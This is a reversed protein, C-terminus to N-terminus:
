HMTGLTLSRMQPMLKAVVAMQVESKMATLAVTQQASPCSGTEPIAQCLAVLSDFGLIGAPNILDHAERASAPPDSDFSNGLQVLFREVLSQVRPIGLAWVAENFRTQNFLPEQPMDKCGETEVIQSPLWRQVTSYLKAREIPKAVHDNMGADLFTQVHMPLVNGTMAIIPIDCLPKALARICSTATVGDMVPMQIDMLVMDFHNKQLIRIADPANGVAAVAYGQDELYAKVIERNSDLDDVLLIKVLRIGERSKSGQSPEPADAAVDVQPPTATPLQATFWVTTGEGTESIVAIEGNMLEVLRKCIALGLGTGGHSRSISSDAQSFQNFLRHQHELAIGIGTDTVSFRVTEGDATDRRVEITISGDGTFKIANSLLNVLIQRLRSHDGLLWEPVDSEIDCTLRINKAEILPLIASEIESILLRPSFPHSQLEILGAEVKSFDLIDDVINALAVNAARVLEIYRRQRATLKGTRSLLDIFGSISTLPTRIEHSMVAVFETKARNAAEAQMRALEAADRAEKLQEAQLNRQTVDRMIGTFCRRGSIDQWEGISLELAVTSGDKRRGSVERGIGIIKKIGTDGFVQLYGDHATQHPEPMLVRINQGVIEDASYGFITEAAHNFAGVNGLEDILIIADVGTEAIAFYRAAIEQLMKAHNFDRSAM